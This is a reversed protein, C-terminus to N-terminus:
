GGTLDEPRDVDRPSGLGTCDVELVSGPNAQLWARAATDGLALEAVAPWVPASLLVPHGRRGDYTAIAASAGSGQDVLRRVAEASVWPTDVLLVITAEIDAAGRDGAAALDVLGARLSSGMGSRWLPNAVVRAGAVELDVAGSVVVVPSCGGETLTRVARDVLREGALMAVAKPGGFRRGEGAALVLGAVTV